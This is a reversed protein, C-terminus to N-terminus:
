HGQWTFGQEYNPKVQVDLMYLGDQERLWIKRGTRKNQIYSGGWDDSDFVVRSGNHVIKSVSGLAKNVPCVQFKM